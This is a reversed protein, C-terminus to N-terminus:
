FQSPNFFTWNTMDKTDDIEITSYRFNVDEQIIVGGVLIRNPNIKNERDMYDLLANHKNPAEADSRKTKTDFLGIKGSKFKIVFDVYFLRLVGYSDNYPVAFHEKGQDGNKYWWDIHNENAILFNKFAQEPNSVGNSEFFPELAHSEIEEKKNYLETYYRVEPVEWDSNEVRRKDNGQTLQWAEFKELGQVIHQILLAKNQPFLFFKHATTEFMGFYYEAFHILTKRLQKWSKSRNLRTINDYCFRDFMDSFQAKTIAFSKIQNANLMISNVEYPDINIDTPIPIQHDDIEFEWGNEILKRKNDQKLLEFVEFDQDTFLDGEPLQKIAYREELVKFFKPEFYDTLLGKSPRDNIVTATVLKDFVWGKDDKREAYQPIFFDVDSPVFNIRNSEINTYVYGYNLDDSDYHRQHPMRLIRGVTQIGFDPSKVTRYSVLISARPCDWGQAIAQKFILVDQLGNIDELGDTDKEGSLWIALRGNNTSINFESNLLGVLTDRITKDEESLATTESPLQIILLPNIKNEGLEANYLAQLEKKKALATRLLHIHVNDSGQLKPDLGINLRVGKKIMQEKIVKQRPISVTLQPRVNPTATVMIEIKAKILKRVAIAQPGTFASLHAEDIILIIQTDFAKTNEILTELNRSNENDQRWIKKMGDVSSWNVFLLDKPNLIPNDSLSNLDFCNLKATDAYLKQLSLFSQIHLTNPAFWIFAVKDNLGPQLPLEDVLRYLYDAMMVTKGSGTPAELLIPIQVQATDLADFTNTLLSAVAKDQFDKLIYM